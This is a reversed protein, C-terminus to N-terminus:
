YKKSGHLKIISIYLEQNIAQNHYPTKNGNNWKWTRDDTDGYKNVKQRQKRPQGTERDQWIWDDRTRTGTNIGETKKDQCTKTHAETFTNSGMKNQYDTEHTRHETKSGRDRGDFEIGWFTHKTHQATNGLQTWEATDGRTYIERQEIETHEWMTSTAEM